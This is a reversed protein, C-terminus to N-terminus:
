IFFSLGILSRHGEWFPITVLHNLQSPVGSVAIDFGHQKEAWANKCLQSSIRAKTGLSLFRNEILHTFPRSSRGPDKWQWTDTMVNSAMARQSGVWSNLFYIEM